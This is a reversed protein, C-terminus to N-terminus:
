RALPTSEWHEALKGSCLLDVVEDPDGSLLSISHAFLSQFDTSRRESRSRRDNIPHIAETPRFDAQGETRAVSPNLSAIM